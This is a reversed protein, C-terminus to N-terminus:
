KDRSFANGDTLRWCRRSRLVRWRGERTAVDWGCYHGTVRMEGRENVKCGVTLHVAYSASDSLRLVNASLVYGVTTDAAAVGRQGVCGIFAAAAISDAPIAAARLLAMTEGNTAFYIRPARPEGAWLSDRVLARLLSYFATDAPPVVPRAQAGAAGASPLVTILLLSLARIMLDRMFCCPQFSVDRLM